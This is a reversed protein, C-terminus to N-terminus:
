PFPEIEDPHVWLDRANGLDIRIGWMPNSETAFGVITGVEGTFKEHLADEGTRDSGVVIIIDGINM